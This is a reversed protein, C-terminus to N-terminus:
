PSSIFIIGVLFQLMKQLLELKAMIPMIRDEGIDEMHGLLSNIYHISLVEQLDTLDRGKIANSPPAHYLNKQQSLALQFFFSFAVFSLLSNITRFYNM